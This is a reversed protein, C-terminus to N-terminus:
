KSIAGEPQQPIFNLAAMRVDDQGNLLALIDFKEFNAGKTEAVVPPNRGFDVIANTTALRLFELQMTMIESTLEPKGLVVTRNLEDRATEVARARVEPVRVEYKDCLKGM